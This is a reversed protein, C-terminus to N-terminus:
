NGGSFALLRSNQTIVTGLQLKSSDLYIEFGQSYEPYALTSDHAITDKVSYFANQHVDDWHWQRKRTKNARTIKTHGCEGVVNTRPALM